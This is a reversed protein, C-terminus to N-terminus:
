RQLPFYDTTKRLNTPFVYIRKTPPVHSKHINCFTFSLISMLTSLIEIYKVHEQTKFGVQGHSFALIKKGVPVPNKNGCKQVSFPVPARQIQTV